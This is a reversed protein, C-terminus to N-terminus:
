LLIIEEAALTKDAVPDRGLRTCVEYLCGYCYVIKTHPTRAPQWVADYCVLCTHDSEHGEPRDTLEIAPPPPPRATRGAFASGPLPPPLTRAERRPPARNEFQIVALFFSRYNVISDREYLFTKAPTYWTCHCRALDDAYDLRSIEVVVRYAPDSGSGSGSGNSDGRQTFTWSRRVGLPLENIERYLASPPCDIVADPLDRAKRRNRDPLFHVRNDLGSYSLESREHREAPRCCASGM